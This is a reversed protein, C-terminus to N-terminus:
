LAVVDIGRLVSSVLPRMDHLSTLDVFASLAFVSVLCGAPFDFSFGCVYQRGRASIMGASLGSLHVFEVGDRDSFVAENIRIWFGRAPRLLVPTKGVRRLFLGLPEDKCAVAALKKKKNM